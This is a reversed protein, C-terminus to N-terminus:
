KSVNEQLYSNILRSFIEIKDRNMEHWGNIIEDDCTLSIYYCYSEVLNSENIYKFLPLHLNEWINEKDHSKFSYFLKFFEDTNRIFNEHKNLGKNSQKYTNAEISSVLLDISNFTKNESKPNAFIKINSTDNKVIEVNQLWLNQLLQYAEVSRDTNPELLLFFYLSLMGEVRRGYDNMLLGLMLHSSSHLKNLEITKIYENEAEDFQNNNHYSIGLNFHLLFNNPYDNIATKYLKISKNKEGLYDLASGKLIIADITKQSKTRIIRNCTKITQRYDNKALYTVALEYNITPSKKDVSLAEQFKQIAQNYNGSNRLEIGYITLSDINQAYCFLHYITLLIITLFWKM